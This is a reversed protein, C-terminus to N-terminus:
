IYKKAKKTSTHFYDPDFKCLLKTTFKPPINSNSITCNGKIHGESTTYGIVTLSEITQNLRNKLIAQVIGNDLVYFSECLLKPPAVNCRSPIHYGINIPNSYHVSLIGVSCIVLLIIILSVISLTSIKKKM